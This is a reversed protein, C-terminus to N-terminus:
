LLEPQVAHRLIHEISSVDKGFKTALIKQAQSKTRTELLEAYENIIHVHEISTFFDELMSNGSGGQFELAELPQKGQLIRDASDDFYFLVWKPVPRNSKRFFMYASWVFYPNQTKEYWLKLFQSEDIWSM